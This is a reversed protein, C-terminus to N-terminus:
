GWVINNGWVINDCSGGCNEGWVINQGSAHARAGCSTPAGPPAAPRSCAARSAANGWFIHKSWATSLPYRSGAQGDAFFRALTVAGLANLFGAGQTLYNYGHTRRATYQLIAKVM